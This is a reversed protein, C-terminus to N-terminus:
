LLNKAVLSSSAVKLHEWTKSGVGLLTEWAPQAGCAGGSSGLGGGWAVTPILPLAGCGDM